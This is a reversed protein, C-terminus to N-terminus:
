RYSVIRHSACAVVLCCGVFCGFFYLFYRPGTTAKGESGRREQERSTTRCLNEKAKEERRGRGGVGSREHAREARPRRAQRAGRRQSQVTEYERLCLDHRCNTMFVRYRRPWRVVNAVPTVAAVSHHIVTGISTIPVETRSADHAPWCHRERAMPMWHAQGVHRAIPCAVQAVSDVRVPVALPPSAPLTVKVHAAIAHGLRRRNDVAAARHRAMSVRELVSTSERPRAIFAGRAVRELRAVMTGRAVVINAIATDDIPRLDDAHRSMRVSQSSDHVRGDLPLAIAAVLIAGRSRCRTPAAQCARVKIKAIRAASVARGRLRTRQLCWRGGRSRDGSRGCVRCRGKPGHASRGGRARIYLRRRGTRSGGARGSCRGAAVAHRCAARFWRSQRAANNPCQQVRGVLTDHTHFLLAITHKNRAAVNRAAM